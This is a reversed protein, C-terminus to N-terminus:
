ASQQPPETVPPRHTPIIAAHQSGGGASRLGEDGYIGNTLQRFRKVLYDLQRILKSGPTLRQKTM